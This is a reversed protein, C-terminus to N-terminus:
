GVSQGDPSYATQLVIFCVYVQKSIFCKRERLPVPQWENVKRGSNSSLISVVKVLLSFIFSYGASQENLKTYHRPSVARRSVALPLLIYIGAGIFSVLVGVFYNPSSSWHEVM